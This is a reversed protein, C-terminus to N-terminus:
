TPSSWSFRTSHDSIDLMLEHIAAPIMRVLPGLFEEFIAGTHEDMYIKKLEIPLVLVRGKSRRTVRQVMDAGFFLCNERITLHDGALEIRRLKQIFLDILPAFYERDIHHTGLNIVPKEDTSWHQSSHQRQYNYSHFDFIVGFGYEGLVHQWFLELTQDFTRWKQISQEYDAEAPPERWIDLNWAQSPHRYLADPPARNLDCEFRSINAALTIPFSDLFRDMAVDEEYRREEDNIKMKKRLSARVQHSHHLSTALYPVCSQLSLTAVSDHTTGDIPFDHLALRKRLTHQTLSSKIVTM